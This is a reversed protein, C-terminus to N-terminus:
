SVKSIMYEIYFHTKSEFKLIKINVIFGTLSSSKNLKM